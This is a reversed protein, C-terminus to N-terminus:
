AKPRPVDEARPALYVPLSVLLFALVPADLALIGLAIFSRRVDLFIALALVCFAGAAILGGQGTVRRYRRRLTRPARLPALQLLVGCGAFVLAGVIIARAGRLGVLLPLEIALPVLLVHLLAARRLRAARVSLYKPISFITPAGDMIRDNYDNGKRNPM